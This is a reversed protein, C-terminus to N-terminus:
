GINNLLVSFVLTLASSFKISDYSPLTSPVETSQRVGMVKHLLSFTSLGDRAHKDLRDKFVEQLASGVVEWIGEKLSVYMGQIVDLNEKLLHLWNIRRRGELIVFFLQDGDKNNGRAHQFATVM